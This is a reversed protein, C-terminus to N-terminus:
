KSTLIVDLGNDPHYTWSANVDAWSASQRGQLATTSDMQTVVADSVKLKGLVCVLETITLGDGGTKSEGDLTLTKGGDGVTAYQSSTLNCAAVANQLDTQNDAVPGTAVPGSAVPNNGTLAIVMIVVVVILAAGAGIWTFPRKFWPRTPIAGPESPTEAVPVQLPTTVPTGSGPAFNETWQQGDWYRQQGDPQPYWGATGSM